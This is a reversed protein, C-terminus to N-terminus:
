QICIGVVVVVRGMTQSIPSFVLYNVLQVYVKGDDYEYEFNNILVLIKHNFSHNNKRREHFRNM